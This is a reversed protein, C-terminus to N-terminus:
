VNHEEQMLHYFKDTEFRVCNFNSNNVAVVNVIEQHENKVFKNVQEILMNATSGDFDHLETIPEDRTM